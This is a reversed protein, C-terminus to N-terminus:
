TSRPMPLTMDLYSPDSWLMTAHMVVATILRLASARDPFAGVARTRRKRQMRVMCRQREAEPLHTRVAAAIGKHDDAVVLKVGRLGRETLQSLRESWSDESEQAGITVALLTRKGDMGVGYAVLAAVNEVKRAWRADIFTADLFLYLM